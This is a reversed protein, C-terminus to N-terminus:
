HGDALFGYDGTSYWGDASLANKLFGDNGWYGSFLSETRIVIEGAQKEALQEEGETIRLEVGPLPKGSSLFAADPLDFSPPPLSPTRHFQVASRAFTRPAEGLTTQTVAFVNEAMAYSAQLSQPTVGWEAFSDIFSDMSAQRVPESCSIWA